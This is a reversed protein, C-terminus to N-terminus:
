SDSQDPQRSLLRLRYSPFSPSNGNPTPDNLTAAVQEMLLERWRKRMRFVQTKLAGMGMGLEAALEAHSKTVGSGLGLLPRLAACTGAKGHAAFEMDMVHM